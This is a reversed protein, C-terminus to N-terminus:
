DRPFHRLMDSLIHVVKLFSLQCMTVKSETVMCQNRWSINEEPKWCDHRRERGRRQIQRVLWVSREEGSRYRASLMEGCLKGREAAQIPLWGRRVVCQLLVSVASDM